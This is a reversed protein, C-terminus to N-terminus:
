GASPIAAWDIVPGHLDGHHLISRRRQSYVPPLRTSAHLSMKLCTMDHVFAHLAESINVRLCAPSLEAFCEPAPEAFCAYADFQLRQSGPFLGAREREERERRARAETPNDLEFLIDDM